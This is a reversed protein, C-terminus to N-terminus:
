NKSKELEAETSGSDKKKLKLQGEKREKKAAAVIKATAADVPKDVNKIIESIRQLNSAWDTIIIQNASVNSSMEGYSSTLMRIDKQVEDASAHKLSIIWTVMRQPKAAPLETAVPVNDRQASRANRITYVDGNKIAAFGNVALGESLQNFAEEVTIDTPNLLTIKGRVTSDIIFKQGSAKAYLEIIKTIEENVFNFKLKDEAHSYVGCLIIVSMLLNKM